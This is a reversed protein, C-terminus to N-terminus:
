HSRHFFLTQQTRHESRVSAQFGSSPAGAQWRQAEITKARTAPVLFSQDFRYRASTRTRTSAYVISSSGVNPSFSTARRRSFASSGDLPSPQNSKSSVQLMIGGPSTDTLDLLLETAQPVVGVIGRVKRRRHLRFYVARNTQSFGQAKTDAFDTAARSFRFTTLCKTGLM